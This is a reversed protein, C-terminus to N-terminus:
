KLCYLVGRPTAGRMPRTSQFEVDVNLYVLSERRAGCPARPNFSGLCCTCRIWDHDRGAHPAHISVRRQNCADRVHYTAGRMPRTSQFRRPLVSFTMGCTAGRMPRTSQFVFEAIVKVIIRQRAGCPARPNFRRMSVPSNSRCTDRGAHPAHISVSRYQLIGNRWFTAGRMPRTSQFLADWRAKQRRTPRAGCPARPNFSWM